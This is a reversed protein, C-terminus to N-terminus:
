KVESFDIVRGYQEKEFYGISGDGREVIEFTKISDKNKAHDPNSTHHCFDNICTPCDKWKDWGRCAGPKRDCIFFMDVGLQKKAEEVAQNFDKM